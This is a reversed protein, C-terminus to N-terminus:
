GQGRHWREFRGFRSQMHAALKQRQEPTLVDAVELLAQELRKSAEDATTVQQARLAELANRDLTPAAMLTLAQKRAGAIKDRLPSLDKAAGQAIAKLRQEQEPTAKVEAALRKAMREAHQVPDRPQAFSKGVFGGIGTLAQEVMVLGALAQARCAWKLIIAPSWRGVIRGNIQAGAMLMLANAGFGMLIGVLIGAPIAVQRRRSAARSADTVGAMGDEMDPRM